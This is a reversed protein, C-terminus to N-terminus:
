NWWSGGQAVFTVPHPLRVRVPVGSAQGQHRNGLQGNANYGWNFYEGDSLLAGSNAFSAVLRPVAAGSRGAVREPRTTSTRRGPGLRRAVNQGCGWGTGDADYIAHNSAGAVATVHRFPLRVPTAYSKTDGLCFEGRRNYGWGWVRGHTDVALGSD